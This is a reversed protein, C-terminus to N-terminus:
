KNNNDKNLLLYGEVDEDYPVVVYSGKPLDDLTINSLRKNRRRKPAKKEKNMDEREQSYLSKQVSDPVYSDRIYNM